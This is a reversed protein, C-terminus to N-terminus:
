LKAFGSCADGDRYDQTTGQGAHRSANLPVSIAALGLLAYAAYELMEDELLSIANPISPRLARMM